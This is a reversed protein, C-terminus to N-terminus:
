VIENSSNTWAHSGTENFSDIGANSEATNQTENGQLKEGADSEANNLTEKGELKDKVFAIEYDKIEISKKMVLSLFNISELITKKQMQEKPGKKIEEKMKSKWAKCLTKFESDKQRLQDMLSSLEPDNIGYKTRLSLVARDWRRQKDQQSDSFVIYGIGVGVTIGGLVMRPNMM